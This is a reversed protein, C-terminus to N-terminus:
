NLIVKNIKYISQAINIPIDFNQRYDICDTNSINKDEVNFRINITIDLFLLYLNNVVNNFVEPPNKILLIYKKTKNTLM